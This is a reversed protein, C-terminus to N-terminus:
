PLVGLAFLSIAVNVHILVTPYDLMRKMNVVVQKKRKAQLALETIFLLLM